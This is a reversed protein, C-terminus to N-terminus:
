GKRLAIVTIDDNCRGGARDDGSVMLSACLEELPLSANLRVIREKLVNGEDFDPGTARRYQSDILELLGDTYFFLMDGTNFPVVAPRYVFHETLGVIPGRPKIARVEGNSLLYTEPHGASVLSLKGEGTDIDAIICTFVIQYDRYLDIFRRSLYNLVLEPSHMTEKIAAYESLIKVTNLSASIGHGTADALFIRLIGPRVEIIDYIDGGLHIVPKYYVYSEIGPINRHFMMLREQFARAIEMDDRIVREWALLQFTMQKLDISRKYLGDATEKDARLEKLLSREIELMQRIALQNEIRVLLEDRAFPKTIYDNAGSVFGRVMDATADRATVMIIPLAAHKESQRITRCVEYGSMGPLMLDLLVLDVSYADIIKLADPGNTAAVLEYGAVACFGELVKLNVEDDDVALIRAPTFTAVEAMSEESVPQPIEAKLAIVPKKEAEVGPKVIGRSVSDGPLVVIFASGKGKESELRISGGHLEVLYKTIPLGLGTGGARRTDANEAQVFPNWIREMDKAAIGPGEDRVTIRAGGGANAEVLVTVTGKESFKIANGVLNILVQRLRNRDALITPSDATVIKLSLGKKEAEVRLLSVVTSAVEGPNVPELLLDAKGARLKSFDLIDGVMGSLHAAELRILNLNEKQAPTVPGHVGEILSESLGMIGHLPTRLEHSTTALFDDKMKDLVMLEGHARELDTHVKAYRSALVYSFVLTMLFFSEIIYPETKIVNIFRLIGVIVTVGLISIGFLIQGSYIIKKRFARIAIYLGYFVVMSVSKMYLGYLHKNFFSIDGTLAYEFAVFLGFCFYLVVLSVAFWNIKESFFNHLFMIMSIYLLLMPNIYTFIIYVWQYDFLWLVYGKYGLIWIGLSFSMLSYYLYFKESHRKIFLILFFLSLFLLAATISVYWIIQLNHTGRITDPNGLLIDRSFGCMRNLPATKIAIENIGVRVIESPIWAIDPKGVAPDIKDKDKSSGSAYILKGNFFVNVDRYHLPLFAALDAKQAIFINKIFWVNGEHHALSEHFPWSDTIRFKHRALDSNVVSQFPYEEVALFFWEGGLTNMQDSDIVQICSEPEIIKSHLYSLPSLALVVVLTFIIHRTIEVM